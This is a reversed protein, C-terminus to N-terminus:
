MRDCYSSQPKIGPLSLKLYHKELRKCSVKSPYGEIYSGTQCKNEIFGVATGLQIDVCLKM